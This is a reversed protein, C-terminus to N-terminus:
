QLNRPMIEQSSLHMETENKSKNRRMSEPFEDLLLPLLLFDLRRLELLLPRRLLRLYDQLLPLRTRLALLPRRLLLLLVLM